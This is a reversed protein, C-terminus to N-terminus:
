VSIKAYKFVKSFYPLYLKRNVHQMVCPLIFESCIFQDRGMVWQHFIWLYYNSAKRLGVDKMSVSLSIVLPCVSHLELTNMIIINKM